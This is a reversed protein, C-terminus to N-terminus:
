PACAMLQALAHAPHHSTGPLAPVRRVRPMMSGKLYPPVGSVMSLTHRNKYHTFIHSIFISYKYIKYFSNRVVQANTYAPLNVMRDGFDSSETTAKDEMDQMTARYLTIKLRKSDANMIEQGDETLVPPSAVNKTPDYIAHLLLLIAASYEDQKAGVTTSLGIRSADDAGDNTLGTCLIKRPIPSNPDPTITAQDQILRSAAESLRTQLLELEPTYKELLEDEVLLPQVLISENPGIYYHGRGKPPMLDKLDKENSLVFNHLNKSSDMCLEAWQALHINVNSLTSVGAEDVKCGVPATNVECPYSLRLRILVHEEASKIYQALSLATATDKTFAPGAAQRLPSDQDLWALPTITIISKTITIPLIVPRFIAPNNSGNCLLGKAKKGNTDEYELAM